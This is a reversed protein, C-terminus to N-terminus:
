DGSAAFVGPAMESDERVSRFVCAVADGDLVVWAYLAEDRERQDIAYRLLRVDHGASATLDYGGARCPGVKTGWSSTAMLDTPLTEAFERAESTPVIGHRELERAVQPDLAIESGRAPTTTRSCAALAITAIM